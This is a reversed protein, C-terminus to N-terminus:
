LEERITALLEECDQLPGSHGQQKALARAREVPELADAWRELRMLAQGLHLWAMMYDPKLAVVRSFTEQAAAWQKAELEVQGLSFLPLENNPFQAALARFRDRRALLEPPFDSM